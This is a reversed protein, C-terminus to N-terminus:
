LISSYRKRTFSYPVLYFFNYFKSFGAYVDGCKVTFHCELKSSFEFIYNFLPHEIPFMFNIDVERQVLMRVLRKIFDSLSLIILKYYKLIGRQM